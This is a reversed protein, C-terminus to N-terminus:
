WRGSRERARIFPEAHPEHRPRRRSSTGLRSLEIAEGSTVPTLPVREIRTGDKAFAGADGSLPDVVISIWHPSEHAWFSPVDAFESLFISGSGGFPHSHADGVDVADAMSSAELERRAVEWSAPLIECSTRTARCVGETALRILPVIGIDSAGIPPEDLIAGYLLFGWESGQSRFRRLSQRLLGALVAEDILVAGPFSTSDNM